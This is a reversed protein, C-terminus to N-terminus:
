RTPEAYIEYKSYGEISDYEKLLTIKSAPTVWIYEPTVGEKKNRFLNNYVESLSNSEDSSYTAESYLSNIYDFLIQKSKPAFATESENTSHLFLYVSPIGDTVVTYYGNANTTAEKKLWSHSYRTPTMM